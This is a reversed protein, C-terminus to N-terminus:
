SERNKTNEAINWKRVIFMCAIHSFIMFTAVCFLTLVITWFDIYASVCSISTAVFRMLGKVVVISIPIGVLTAIVFQSISQLLWLTSINGVSFGISRLVSIDRKQEVLATQNMLLVILAGLCMAVAVFALTVGQMPKFNNSFYEKIDENFNIVSDYHYNSMYELLKNNDVDRLYYTDFSEDVYSDIKEINCICVTYVEFNSIYAVKVDKGDVKITDKAKIGLELAVNKNIIIGEEPIPNSDFFKKPIRITDTGIELGQLVTDFSKNGKELTIKAYKGKEFDNIGLTQLENEFDNDDRALVVQADYNLCNKFTQRLAISYSIRFTFAMFILFFSSLIAIFSTIYRKPKRTISNVALKTTPPAKMLFKDLKDTMKIRDSPNESLEEIPTLRLIMFSSFFTALQSVLITSVVAIITLSPRFEMITLPYKFISATLEDISHGLLNGSIIGLVSGVLSIILSFAALLLMIKEKTFGLANLIGIDRMMTRLIQNLFLTIILVMIVFVTFGVVKGVTGFSSVNSIVYSYVATEEFTFADLVNTGHNELIRTLDRISQKPDIGEKAYVHFYNGYMGIGAIVIEKILKLQDVLEIIDIETKDKLLILLQDVILELQNKEVYIRGFNKNSSTTDKSPGYKLTDPFKIIGVTQVEISEGYYGIKLKQNTKLNNDKAFNEEIFVNPLVDSYKIEEVITPKYKQTKEFTFIQSAKTVDQDEIYTAAPLM